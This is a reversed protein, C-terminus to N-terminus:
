CLGQSTLIGFLFDSGRGTLSDPKATLVKLAYPDLLNKPLIRPHVQIQLCGMKVGLGWFFGDLNHDFFLPFDEWLFRSFFAM